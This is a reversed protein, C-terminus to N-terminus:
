EECIYKETKSSDIKIEYAPILYYFPWSNLHGSNLLVEMRCNSFFLKDKELMLFISQIVEAPETWPQMRSKQQQTAKKMRQRSGRQSTIQQFFILSFVWVSNSFAIESMIQKWPQFCFLLCHFIWWPKGERESLLQAFRNQGEQVICIFKKGFHTM